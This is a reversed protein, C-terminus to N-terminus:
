YNISENEKSNEEVPSEKKHTMSYLRMKQLIEKKKENLGLYIRTEPTDEGNKLSSIVDYIRFGSFHEYFVHFLENLEDFNEKGVTDLIIQVNGNRRSALIEEKFEEFFEKVLFFTHEYSTTHKYEENEETDFIYQHKQHKIECIEQAIVENIIESFLEYKRKTDDTELTNIAIRESQNISGNVKDWGSIVSYYNGEVSKLSSEFLHNLEHIIDHDINGSNYSCNVVILPYLRYGEETQIINTNVFTKSQNSAFISANFSDDKDLFHM